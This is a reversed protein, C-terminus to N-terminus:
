QGLLGETVVPPASVAGARQTATQFSKALREVGAQFNAWGSQDKLARAVFEPDESVLVKVIQEREADTLDPATKGIMKRAVRVLAVPNLQAAQMAEDETIGLGQRAAQGSTIATDSGGLIRTAAQQSGAAREVTQLVTDLEDEPTVIRLIQGFKNNPDALNTMMSKRSGTAMRNKISQLVGARYSRIAEPSKLASFDIAVQDASKGFAKQGENFADRASRVTAAEARTAGMSIQEGAQTTVPVDIAERLGTEVEGIAKGVEPIGSKFERSAMGSLTRRVLEAEKITPARAFVVAGKENVFFPAEGTQTKFIRNLAAGADPVRNIADELSSQMEPTVDVSEFKKYALNELAKAEEDSAAMGRLINPDKIDSLYKQIESMAEQRTREPRTSFTRQLEAAGAGGKARFGRVADLLTKNESMIRGSAVGEIVEDATLGSEQMLRNLEQEVAKSGRKGLKRTVYDSIAEFPKTIYPAAAYAAGGVPAGVLGGIGAGIAREELTEGKGAGTLAGQAAGVGIAGKVSTPAAVGAVKALTPYKSAIRAVGLGTGAGGSFLGAILSPLAAGGIEYGLAEMPRAQEYEKLAGRTEDLLDQYERSGLSRIGAEIEDAFGFTVGQAISRLRQTPVEARKQEKEQRRAKARAVAQKQADTLDAM